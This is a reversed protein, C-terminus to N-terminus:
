LEKGSDDEKSSNQNSPKIVNTLSGALAGLGAGALTALVNQKTLAFTLICVLTLMSLTLTLMIPYPEKRVKVIAWILVGGIVFLALITAILITVVFDIPIDPDLSM